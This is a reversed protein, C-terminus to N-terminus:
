YEEPESPDDPELGPLGSLNLNSPRFDMYYMGHRSLAHYVSYAVSANAGFSRRIGAHWLGMTDASFDPPSFLVGAFDLLFPPIVCDIRILNLDYRYDRLKPVTLGNLTTIGARKLRQYVELETAFSEPRRLIKVATLADPSLYVHGSIGWGLRRLTTTTGFYQQAAAAYKEHDIIM